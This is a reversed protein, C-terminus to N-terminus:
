PEGDASDSGGTEDREGPEGAARRLSARLQDVLLAFRPDARLPELDEDALLHEADQYGCAVSRQLSEFAEDVHGLLALSCALNYHATPDGPLSAVIRRDVGLGEEVRGLRTLVHGLESLAELNEPHRGIERSLIDALFEQGLLELSERVSATLPFPSPM